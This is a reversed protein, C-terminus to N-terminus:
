SAVPAAVPAQPAEHIAYTMASAVFCLAAAATFAGTYSGAQAYLIGSLYAGCAGGIQHGCTVWGYVRGMSAKGFLDAALSSVPPVTATYSLGFIVAWITVSVGGRVTLLFLIAMGRTLYYVSLPIRNGFRDCIRGSLVTGVVNMAGVLSMANAAQVPHFGHEVWYPILHTQALGSTMYGCVFYGLALWWFDPSRVVEGMAVPREPAPFPAAADQRGVPVEAGYPALGVDAPDSRLLWAVLPFAIGTVALGQLLYSRRWGYWELLLSMLPLFVLQGASFGAGVIGVALGRRRAFWRTAVMAGATVSAGGAAIGGVIGWVIYFQWFQKVLSTAITGLGILLLAGGLVRRAGVRDLLYGVLPQCFAFLLLSVSVVSATAERSVLFDGELAKIFVGYSSRTGMGVLSALFTVGLVIWGYHVRRFRAPLGSLVAPYPM